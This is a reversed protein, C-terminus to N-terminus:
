KKIFRSKLGAHLFYHMCGGANSIEREDGRGIKEEIDRDDYKNDKGKVGLLEGRRPCAEGPFPVALEKLRGM